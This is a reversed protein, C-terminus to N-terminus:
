KIIMNYGDKKGKEIAPIGEEMWEPMPQNKLYHDFFQMMRISLDVRNPWKYINHDDDNYNLMWVPKDLRRLATFYEIGQHWPVAGDNDNNMLLLPTNVKNAFFIPSNKIYLDLSDWPNAGIRSQGKEYQFQRSLGAGWRIGGYASIMNSVAAGAEGCAYIDTRTVLYAVQYGGWSQGQLGIRNADIYNHKKMFETGSVISNYASQGPQGNLYHVDPVFIIYGNSGYFTFNITSQSPKPSNFSHIEDSYKEYFYVIMPYKKTSDFNEPKYVLGEHDKGDFAKWKVRDVTVWNFENQIPNINTIVKSDNINSKYAIINPYTKVDTKNYLFVDSEDAKVLEDFNYDEFILKELKKTTLNLTYYGSKKTTEDFAYLYITGYEDFYKQKSNLHIVSFRIKNSRGFSNTLNVPKMGKELSCLWLDYRDNIIFQSKDSSFGSFGYSEPLQPIDNEENHFNVGLNRTIEVIDGNELYLMNWQGTERAFYIITKGDPSITPYTPTHSLLISREGTEMNIKYFDYYSDDWQAEREYSIDDIGIAWKSTNDANLRISRIKPTALTINKNSDIDYYCLLSRKLDRLKSKLQQPQLRGDKYNWVDVSYKEEDTLTDKAQQVPKPTIGFFIRKSDKSFYPKQHESPCYGLPNSISLSDTVIINTDLSNIIDKKTYGYILSFVKNESFTDTSFHFAWKTGNEDFNFNKITGKKDFICRKTDISPEYISICSTFGTDIEIVKIIAIKEGSKTFKYEDVDEFEISKGNSPFLIRLRVGDQKKNKKQSEKNEKALIQWWKKEDAVKLESKSKLSEYIIWGSLSDPMMFKKVDEIKVLSDKGFIYIGLSDKPLKNKPTKKLQLQRVVQYQPKILFAIYNSTPSFEAGYARPFTDSVGNLVNYVVLFGDGVGPNVEYYIYNGNKSIGKDSISRWKNYIDHTLTKKSISDQSHIKGSLCILILLPLIKINM